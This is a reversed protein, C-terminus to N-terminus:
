KVNGVQVETGLIIISSEDLSATMDGIMTEHNTLWTRKSEDDSSDFARENADRIGIIAKLATCFKLLGLM